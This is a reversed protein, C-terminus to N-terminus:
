LLSPSSVKSCSPCQKTHSEYRELMQYRSLDQRPPQTGAPWGVEGGVMQWWQRFKSVAQVCATMDAHATSASLNSPFIFNQQTRMRTSTSTVSPHAALVCATGSTSVLQLHRTQM